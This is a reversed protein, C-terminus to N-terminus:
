PRYPVELPELEGYRRHRSPKDHQCTDCTRVYDNVDEEM